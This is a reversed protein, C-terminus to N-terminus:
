RRLRPFPVRSLDIRPLPLRALAPVRRRLGYFAGGIALLALAILALLLELPMGNSSSALDFLGGKGPEVTTDGVRLKPKGGEAALEDLASKDARRATREAKAAAAKGSPEASRGGGKDSGGTVAGAIVERCDSYEDLDSPLSDGATELDENSYKRDLDGDEACDRIVAGPSAAAVAPAALAVLLVLMYVVRSM